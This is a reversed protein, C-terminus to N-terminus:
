EIWLYWYGDIQVAIFGTDDMSDSQSTDPDDQLTIYMEMSLNRAQDVTGELGSLDLETQLSRLESSSLATGPTVVFEIDMMALYPQLSELSSSSFAETMAAKMDEMALPNDELTSDVISPPLIYVLSEAFYGLDDTTFDSAFLYDLEFALYDSLDQASDFGTDYSDYDDSPDVISDGPYSDDGGDTSNRDPMAMTTVRSELETMIGVFHLTTAILGVVIAVAAVVLVVALVLHGKSKKQPYATVLPTEASAPTPYGSAPAGQVTTGCNYCVVADDTLSTGCHPCNM